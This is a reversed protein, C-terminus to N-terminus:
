RKIQGITDEPRVRAIRETDNLFKLRLLMSSGEACDSDPPQDGPSVTETEERGSACTVRQRLEMTDLPSIDMEPVNDTVLEEAGKEAPPTEHKAQFEEEVEGGKEREQREESQKREEESQQEREEDESQEEKEDESQEEKEDESQEEKEDESQEIEEANCGAEGRDATTEGEGPSHNTSTCPPVQQGSTPASTGEATQLAQDGRDVTRTSAWALVLVLVTFVLGFLITVEDGVGEIIAM